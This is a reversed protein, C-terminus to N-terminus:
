LAQPELESEHGSQRQSLRGDIRDHAQGIDGGTSRDALSLGLEVSGQGRPGTEVEDILEEVDAECEHRDRQGEVQECAVVIRAAQARTQPGVPVPASVEAVPQEDEDDDADAGEADIGASPRQPDGGLNLRGVEAIMPPGYRHEDEQGRLVSDEFLDEDEAEAGLPQPLEPVPGPRDDDGQRDEPGAIVEVLADAREDAVLDSSCVDSS